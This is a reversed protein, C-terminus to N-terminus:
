VVSVRLGQLSSVMGQWMAREVVHAEAEELGFFAPHRSRQGRSLRLSIM